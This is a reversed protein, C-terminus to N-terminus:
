QKNFFFVILQENGEKKVIRVIQGEEKKKSLQIAEKTSIEKNDKFFIAGSEALEKIQALSNPPPLAPILAITPPAISNLQSSSDVTIFVSRGDERHQIFTSDSRKKEKTSPAPLIKLYPKYNTEGNKNEQIFVVRRFYDDELKKEEKTAADPTIELANTESSFFSLLMFFLPITASVLFYVRKQSTNKTMMIFRKKTVSFNLNSALYVKNLTAKDLLLEQYDRVRIHSKLVQEDALFEHNLQIAKKYPILFPNFWFIIQLAEIFIIDLSHWQNAHALEHTLLVGKINKNLYDSQSIFIYKGFTHPLVKEKLLVLKAKKYNIQQHSIARYFLITINFFFRILLLCSIMLYTWTLISYISFNYASNNTFNDETPTPSLIEVGKDSSSYPLASPNLNNFLDIAIQTEMFPIMFSFSLGFLLYWRNFQHMKEKEFVLLYVGLIIVLCLTSKIFYLMTM